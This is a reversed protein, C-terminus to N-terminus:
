LRDAAAALVCAAERLIEAGTSVGTSSPLVGRWVLNENISGGRAIRTVVGVTLGSRGVTIVVRIQRFRSPDNRMQSGEGTL